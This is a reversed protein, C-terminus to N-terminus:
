SKLIDLLRLSLVAQHIDINRMSGWVYQAPKRETEKREHTAIELLSFARMETSWVDEEYTLGGLSLPDMEYYAKRHSEYGTLVSSLWLLGDLRTNHACASNYVSSQCRADFSTGGLDTLSERHDGSAHTWPCISPRYRLLEEVLDGISKIRTFIRSDDPHDTIYLSKVVQFEM